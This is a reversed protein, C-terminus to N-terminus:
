RLELIQRLVSEKGYCSITSLKEVSYTSVNLERQKYKNLFDISEDSTNEEIFIQRKSSFTQYWAGEKRGYLIYGLVRRTL